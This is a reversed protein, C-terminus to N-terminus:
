KKAAPKRAKPAAAPKKAEVKAKTKVKAAKKATSEAAKAKKTEVKAEATAAKAAATDGAKKAEAAEKKAASAAARAERAKALAALRKEKAAAARTEARDKAIAKAKSRVKSRTVKEGAPTSSTVQARATLMDMAADRMDATLVVELCQGPVLARAGGARTAKSSLFNAGGRSTRSGIGTGLIRMLVSSAAKLEKSKTTFKTKGKTDAATQAMRTPICVKVIDSGPASRSALTEGEIKLALGTSEIACEGTKTSCSGKSVEGRVFDAVIQRTQKTVQAGSGPALIRGLGDVARMTNSHMHYRGFGIGSFTGM